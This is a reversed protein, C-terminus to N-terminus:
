KEEKSLKNLKISYEDLLEYIEKQTKGSNKDDWDTNIIFYRGTKTNKDFWIVSFMGPDGGTHGFNGTSGFGMLIGINYEDSYESTSRDIFNEAKLQQTFLEKYSNKSLLTGNGTYGKMLEGIYKSMDKSSTIVSGDPYTICSYFPYATKKNIYLRSHKKMDISRLTWGTSEMKLPQFIHKATFEDFKEGTAKELILAALTTGMNSYEFILGPKHDNFTTPKFWKGKETLVNILFDEMSVATSPASFKCVGIDIKLNKELNVTDELVWARHLYEENDRISSTHTVLQRITIPTERFKPNEIKYPLYKSIPDDLKLKGLEQAKLMAIGVFTKSVSAINQITNETYKEGKELNALGFGNQYLVEKDNTLAVGFGNFASHTSIKTLKETLENQTKIFEESHGKKKTQCSLIQIVLIALVIKKTM